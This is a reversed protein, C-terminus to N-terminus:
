NGFLSDQGKIYANWVGENIKRQKAVELSTPLYRGEVNQIIARLRKINDHTPLNFMDKLYVGVEGDKGMKLYKAYYTEWVKHLLTIDSDRAERYKMLCHLVQNKTTNIAM